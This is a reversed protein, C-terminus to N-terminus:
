EGLFRAHAWGSVDKYRIKCWSMQEVLREEAANLRRREAYSYQPYCGLNTLGQADYPIKAAVRFKISPGNRLNLHDDPAVGYVRLTDPGDADAAVATLLPSAFLAATSAIFTLIKKRPM